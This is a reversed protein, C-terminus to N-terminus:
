AAAGSSTDAASAEPGEAWFEDSWAIGRRVFEARLKRLDELNPVGEGSEWRSITAQNRGTIRALDVQTASLAAKIKTIASMLGNCIRM